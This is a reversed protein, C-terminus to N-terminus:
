LGCDSLPLKRSDKREAISALMNEWYWLGVYWNGLLAQRVGHNKPCNLSERGPLHQLRGAAKLCYPGAHLFM